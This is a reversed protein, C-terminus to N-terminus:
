EDVGLEVVFEVHEVAVLEEDHVDFGRPCFVSDVIYLQLFLTYWQKKNM